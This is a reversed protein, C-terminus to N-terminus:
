EVEIFVPIERSPRCGGEVGAVRCAVPTHITERSQRTAIGVEPSRGTTPFVWRAGPSRTTKWGLEFIRRPYTTSGRWCEITKGMLIEQREQREGTRVTSYFAYETGVPESDWRTM